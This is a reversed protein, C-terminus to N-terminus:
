ALLGQSIDSKEAEKEWSPKYVPLLPEANNKNAFAVQHLCCSTEQTM